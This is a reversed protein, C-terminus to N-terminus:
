ELVQQERTERAEIARGLAQAARTFDKLDALDAATIEDGSMVWETLRHVGGVLLRDWVPRRRTTARVRHLAIADDNM